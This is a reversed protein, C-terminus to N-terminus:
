RAADKGDRAELIAIREVLAETMTGFLDYVENRTPPKRLAEQSFHSKARAIVDKVNM